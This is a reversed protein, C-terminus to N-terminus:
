LIRNNYIETIKAKTTENCNTMIINDLTLAECHLFMSSYSTVKDTNFNSIDLHRLKYCNGFMHGMKTAKTTNFSSLDLTTILECNGFMSEFNTVNSTNFNSLDDMSELSVCGNFMWSMDTCTSTDLNSLGSIKRLNQYDYFLGMLVKINKNINACEVFMKRTADNSSLSSDHIMYKTKVTYVGDTAYTHTRSANITGDGWDTLGDWITTDGARYNQLMVTTTDEVLSTDFVFYNYSRNIGSKKYVIKSGARVIAIEKNNYYIGKINKFNNIVTM